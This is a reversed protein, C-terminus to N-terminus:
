GRRWQSVFVEGDAAIERVERFLRGLMPLVRPADVDILAVHRVPVVVVTAVISERRPAARPVAALGVIVGRVIAISPGAPAPLLM